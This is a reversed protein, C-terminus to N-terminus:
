PLSKLDKWPVRVIRIITAGGFIHRLNKSLKDNVVNKFNSNDSEM